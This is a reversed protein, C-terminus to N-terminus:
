IISTCKKIIDERKTRLEGDSSESFNPNKLQEFMLINHVKYFNATGFHSLEVFELGGKVQHKVKTLM